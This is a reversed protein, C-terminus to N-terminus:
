NMNSEISALSHFILMKEFSRCNLEAFFFIYPPNVFCILRRTYWFTIHCITEERELAGSGKNQSIHKAQSRWVYHFERELDFSFCQDKDEYREEKSWSAQENRNLLPLHM